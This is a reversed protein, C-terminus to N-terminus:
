LRGPPPLPFRAGDLKRLGDGRAAAQSPAM